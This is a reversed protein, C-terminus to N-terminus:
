VFNLYSRTEFPNIRLALPFSNTTTQNISSSFLPTVSSYLSGLFVPSWAIVSRKPQSIKRTTSSTVLFMSRTWSKVKWIQIHINWGNTSSRSPKENSWIAYQTMIFHEYNLRQINFKPISLCANIDKYWSTSLHITPENRSEYNCKEMVNNIVIVDKVLVEELIVGENM